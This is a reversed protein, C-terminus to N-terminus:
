RVARWGKWAIKMMKLLGIKKKFNKKIKAQKVRKPEGDVTLMEECTEGIFEPITDFIERNKFLLHGFKKYKKMDKGVFSKKM